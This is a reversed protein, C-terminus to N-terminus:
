RLARITRESVQPYRHLPRATFHICAPYWFADFAPQGGPTTRGVAAPTFDERFVLPPRLHGPHFEPGSRAVRGASPPKRRARSAEHLAEAQGAACELAGPRGKKDDM